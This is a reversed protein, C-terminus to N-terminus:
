LKIFIAKGQKGDWKYKKGFMEKLIKITEKTLKNIVKMWRLSGNKVKKIEWMNGDKGKRKKGRKRWSCVMGVKLLHNLAKTHVNKIM